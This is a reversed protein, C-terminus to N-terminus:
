GHKAAEKREATVTMIWGLLFLLALPPFVLLVLIKRSM